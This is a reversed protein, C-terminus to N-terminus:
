EIDMIMPREKRRKKNMSQIKIKKKSSLDSVLPNLSPSVYLSQELSSANPILLVASIKVVPRILLVVSTEVVPRILLVAIGMVVCKVKIVVIIKVVSNTMPVVPKQVVRNVMPVAPPDVVSRAMPVVHVRMAVFSSSLKVVIVM